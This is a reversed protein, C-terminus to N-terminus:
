AQAYETLKAITKETLMRSAIERRNEPKELEAQMLRDQYQGKLLQIRLDLEERNVDIGEKDAIEALVLGAKVRREAQERNQARHQEETVGEAELHEQWTQGRYAISQREDAEMRAVEQDILGDPIAVSSKDAVTTLLQEEYQRDAQHQKEATLQKKIDAKLEDIKKFPGVKAAFEDDLKPEKVAQVKVVTVEFHVKREQLSAVNYDKPFVIDFGKKDGAKMGIIQPEFGPIFTGSGLVLPYATGDAGAIPQGSEADTGTFDITVQDGDKAARDVDERVAERVQLQKIVANVDDAKVEPKQKSVKLKKYDTLKIDGIVDTQTEIELATFPVFKKVTVQPQAVPRVKEDDLAQGYMVNMARELVDQQLLNLNANKEVIHLPAKGPRFGALRMDKGMARLSDKKAKDLLEQDAVLTLQVKTDSLNSRTIQM